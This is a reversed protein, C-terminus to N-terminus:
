FFQKKLNEDLKKQYNTKCCLYKYKILDDKSKAYELCSECFKIGCTECKKDSHRYKCKIKYIGEALNIIINPLSIAM